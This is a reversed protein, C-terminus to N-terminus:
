LDQLGYLTHIGVNLVESFAVLEYDRVKRHQNEIRSLGTAGMSLGYQHLKMLLEKQSMGLSKRITTVRVGILNMKGVEVRRKYM